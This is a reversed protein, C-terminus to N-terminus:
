DESDDGHTWPTRLGERLQWVAAGGRLVGLAIVLWGISPADEVISVGVVLFVITTLVGILSRGIPSM